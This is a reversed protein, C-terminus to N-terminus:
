LSSAILKNVTAVKHHSMRMEEDDIRPLSDRSLPLSREDALWGAVYDAVGVADSTCTCTRTWATLLRRPHIKNPPQPIVVFVQFNLILMGRCNGAM